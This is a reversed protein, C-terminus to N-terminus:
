INKEKLNKVMLKKHVKKDLCEILIIKLETLVTKSRERQKQFRNKHTNISNKNETTKKCM